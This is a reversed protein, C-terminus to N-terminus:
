KPAVPDIGSIVWQEIQEATRPLSNIHYYLQGDPLPTPTRDVTLGTQELWDFDLDLSM